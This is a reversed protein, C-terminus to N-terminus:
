KNIIVKFLKMVSFCLRMAGKIIRNVQNFATANIVKTLFDIRRSNLKVVMQYKSVVNIGMIKLSAGICM